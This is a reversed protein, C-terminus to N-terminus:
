ITIEKSGEINDKLEKVPYEGTSLQDIIRDLEICTPIKPDFGSEGVWHIVDNISINAEPYKSTVLKTITKYQKMMFYNNTM